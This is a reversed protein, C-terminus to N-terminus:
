FIHYFIRLHKGQTEVSADGGVIELEGEEQEPMVTEVRHKIFLHAM